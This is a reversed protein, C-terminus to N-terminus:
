AFFRCRAIVNATGADLYSILYLNSAVGVASRRFRRNLDVSAVKFGATLGAQLKVEVPHSVAYKGAADEAVYLYIYTATVVTDFALDLASLECRAPVVVANADAVNSTLTIASWAATLAGAGYAFDAQGNMITLSSNKGNINIDLGIGATVSAVNGLADIIQATQTGDAQRAFIKDLITRLATDLSM